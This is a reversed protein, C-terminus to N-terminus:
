EVKFDVSAVTNEWELQLKGGKAGAASLTIKFVEVLSAPKSMTMKVHGLDMDKKYVTGWQGTQKSIILHWPNGDVQTYITYDGAPVKLGQIDLAADTHFKTASNAGTRWVPYTGDQSIKGGEGFIKRGRVSPAGYKINIAKGGISVSAEAAPSQQSCAVGVISLATVALRLVSKM